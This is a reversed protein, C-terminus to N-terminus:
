RLVFSNYMLFFVKAYRNSYGSDTQHLVLTYPMLFSLSM